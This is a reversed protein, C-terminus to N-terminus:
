EQFYTLKGGILATLGTDFKEVNLPASANGVYVPADPSGVEVWGGGPFLTVGLSVNGTLYTVGSKINVRVTANSSLLLNTVYIANANTPTVVTVISATSLLVPLTVLTKNTGANRTLVTINGSTVATVLGIFTTGIGLTTTTLGIYGKPDALTIQSMGAITVLGIFAASANLTVNGAHVVTALGIFRDGVGLTTTTLGIYGKPDSLTIQSIGGITVLGIYTKPDPWSTANAVTMSGIYNVGAAIVGVNVSALGIYAASANLTVNSGMVTTVLGIFRDGAGNVVTSLGIFGKPDALTLTGIGGVTVLGIYTNPNAAINVTALGIYASSANLTVNSGNVNTVLGVFNPSPALTTLGVPAVTVTGASATNVIAYITAASVLSVKKAFLDGDHEEFAVQNLVNGNHQRM